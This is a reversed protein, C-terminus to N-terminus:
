GTKQLCAGHTVIRVRLSDDLQNNLRLELNQKEDNSLNGNVKINTKFVFPKGPQNGKPVVCSFALVMLVLPLVVATNFFSATVQRSYPM